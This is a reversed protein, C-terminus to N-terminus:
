PKGTKIHKALPDSTPCNSDDYDVRNAKNSKAVTEKPTSQTDVGEKHVHDSYGGYHEPLQTNGKDIRIQVSRGNPLDKVYIDGDDGPFPGKYGNQKAIEAIEEPTRNNLQGLKDLEAKEVDGKGTPDPPLNPCNGTSNPITQPFSKTADKAADIPETTEKGNQSAIVVAAVAATLVMAVGAVIWGPPGFVAGAEAEAEEAVVLAGWTLTSM